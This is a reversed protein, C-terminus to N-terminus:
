DALKINENLFWKVWEDRKMNKAKARRDIETLLKMDPPYYKDFGTKVFEYKGPPIGRRGKKEAHRALERQFADMGEKELIDALDDQVETGLKMRAVTLGDTFYLQGKSLAKRMKSNLDLVKLWESLTSHSIGLEGATARLGAPNTTVVENLQEARTMPDMDEKLMSVNEILSQKRAEREPVDEIIVDVGAIFKAGKAAEPLPFTRDAVIADNEKIFDRGVVFHKMKTVVKALFRRRGVFVGYGDGEPRAKFLQVLKKGTTIQYILNQDKPSKGFEQSYRVNTESVHFKEAPIAEGSQPLEAKQETM